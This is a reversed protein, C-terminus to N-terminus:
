EVSQHKLNRQPSGEVRSVTNKANRIIRGHDKQIIQQYQSRRLPPLRLAHCVFHHRLVLYWGRLV